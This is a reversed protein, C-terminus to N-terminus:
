HGKMATFAARACDLTNGRLVEAREGQMTHFVFFLATYATGAADAAQQVNTNGEDGYRDPEDLGVELHDNVFNPNDLICCDRVSNSYRRNVHLVAHTGFPASCPIDSGYSGMDHLLWGFDIEAKVRALNISNNHQGQENVPSALANQTRKLAEVTRRIHDIVQNDDSFVSGTAACCTWLGHIGYRALKEFHPEIRDYYNPYKTPNFGGLSEFMGMERILNCGLGQLQELQPTIDEGDLDRKFLLFESAGRGYVREGRENVMRHGEIRVLRALPGTAVPSAAQPAGAFGEVRLTGPIGARSLVAGDAATEISLQEWPGDTGAPRTELTGSPQISLQLNAAVFRVGYQGNDRKTIEVDEWEAGVPRDAYVKITGPEVGIYKGNKILYAM